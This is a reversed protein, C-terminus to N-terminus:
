ASATFTLTGNENVNVWRSGNWMLQLYLGGAADPFLCEVYPTEGEALKGVITPTDTTEATKILVAATEGVENGDPIVYYEKTQTSGTTDIMNTKVTSDISPAARGLSATVPLVITEDGVSGAITYANAPTGPWFTITLVPDGNVLAVSDDPYLYGWAGTVSHALLMTIANDITATVSAGITIEDEAATAAVFTFVTSGVTMTELAVPLNPFSISGVALRGGVGVIDKTGDVADWLKTRSKSRQM